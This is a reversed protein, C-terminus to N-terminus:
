GDTHRLVLSYSVQGVGEVHGGRDGDIVAPPTDAAPAHEAIPVLGRGDSRGAISFLSAEPTSAAVVRVRELGTDGAVLFRRTATTARGIPITAWEGALNSFELWLHSGGSQTATVVLVNDTHVADGTDVPGHGEVRASVTLSVRGAAPPPEGPTWAARRGELWTRADSEAQDYGRADLAFREYRICASRLEAMRAGVERARADRERRHWETLLGVVESAVVEVGGLSTCGDVWHVEERGGPVAGTVWAGEALLPVATRDVLEEPLLFSGLGVGSRAQVTVRTGGAVPSLRMTLESAATSSVGVGQEVLAMRLEAEAASAVAASTATGASWTAPALRVTVGVKDLTRRAISRAHDRMTDVDGELSTLVSRRVAAVACPQGDATEGLTWDRVLAAVQDCRTKSYATCVQTRLAAHAKARAGAATHHHGIAVIFDGTPPVASCTEAGAVASLLLFVMM